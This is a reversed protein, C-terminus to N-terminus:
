TLRRNFHPIVNEVHGMTRSLKTLNLRHFIQSERLIDESLYQLINLALIKLAKNRTPQVNYIDRSKASTNIIDEVNIGEM